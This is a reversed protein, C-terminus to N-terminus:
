RGTRPTRRRGRAFRFNLQTVIPHGQPLSPSPPRGAQRSSVKRDYAEQHQNSRVRQYIGVTAWVVLCCAVGLCWGAFLVWGTM